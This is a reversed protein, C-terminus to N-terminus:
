RQTMTSALVTRRNRGALLRSEAPIAVSRQWAAKYRARRSTPLSAERVLRSCYRRIV